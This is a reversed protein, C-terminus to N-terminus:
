DPIDRLLESYFKKYSVKTGAGLVGAKYWMTVLQHPVVFVPVKPFKTIDSLIFGEIAELKALFGTEDFKRGAGVQVSPNFYVGQKTISRVEWLGGQPDKLDYGAGESPALNWGKHAWFLRREIIFSARRGDTMFEHVDANKVGFAAALGACDFDINFRKEM